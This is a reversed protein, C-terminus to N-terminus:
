HKKTKICEESREACSDRRSLETVPDFHETGKEAPCGYKMTHRATRNKRCSGTYYWTFNIINEGEWIYWLDEYM